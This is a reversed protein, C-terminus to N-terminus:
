KDKPECVSEWDAYQQAREEVWAKFTEWKCTQWIGDSCGGMEEQKGNVVARVFSEDSEDNKFRELSIHGLFSILHSTRWAWNEPRKELSPPATAPLELSTSNYLNLFIAVFAPSERHTFSPFLFQTHTANPPLKPAPLKHKKFQDIPEHKEDSDHGDLLHTATKVWPMGLYPSFYSGYGISHYWRIDFYYEVDRWEEDTFLHCFPSDGAAITEYGCLMQMALVDQDNLEDVLDPLYQRLRERVQPAYVSLWKNAPVLSSDKEWAECAKHPTLSRDWDKAKNPVKILQVTEGDGEGHGGSQDSPFSGRIYAEATDIDRESSATWVKYPPIKSGKKKKGGKSKKHKKPFLEGYQKRVYKGLMFADDKGRKSIKELNEEVIPSDYTNLFAWAGEKPLKETEARKIKEIFPGMTQEYEDDNGLIASHRILLSVRELSHGPPLPTPQEAPIFFPSIASLHKLPDIRQPVDFAQQTPLATTQALLSALALGLLIPAMDINNDAARSSFILGAPFLLWSCRRFQRRGDFGQSFRRIGDTM